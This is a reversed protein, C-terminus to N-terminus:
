LAHQPTSLSEPKSMKSNAPPRIATTEVLRHVMAEDNYLANVNRWRLGRFTEQPFAQPSSRVLLFPEQGLRAPGSVSGFGAVFCRHMSIQTGLSSMHQLCVGNGASGQSCQHSLVSAETESHDWSPFPKTACLKNFAACEMIGVV